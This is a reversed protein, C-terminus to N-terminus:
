LNTISLRLILRLFFVFFGAYLQFNKVVIRFVVAAGTAASLPLPVPHFNTADRDRPYITQEYRLKSSLTEHERHCVWLVTVELWHKTKRCIYRHNKVIAVPLSSPTQRFSYTSM